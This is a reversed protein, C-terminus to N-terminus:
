RPGARRSGQGQRGIAARRLRPDTAPGTRGLVRGSRRRGSGCRHVGQRPTRDHAVSHAVCRERFVPRPPPRSIEDEDDLEDIQLFAADAVRLGFRAIVGNVILILVTGVILVSLVNSVRRPVIRRLRRDVMGFLRLLLRGAAVLGAGIVLALAIVKPRYTGELPEMEMLGRVSNQWITTRWLFTVVLVAVGLATLWQLVRRARGRLAPLELYHWLGMILVGLGYGVALAIGSLVGQQGAVRPLLSPTLSIAFLTAASILGVCSFSAWYRVPISRMSM